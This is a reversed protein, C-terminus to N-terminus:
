IVVRECVWGQKVEAGGHNEAGSGGLDMSEM